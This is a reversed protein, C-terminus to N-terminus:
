GACLGAVNKPQGKIKLDQKEADTLRYNITKKM